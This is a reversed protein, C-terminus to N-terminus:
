ECECFSGCDCDPDANIVSATQIVLSLDSGLSSGDGQISGPCSRVLVQGSKPSRYCLLSAARM